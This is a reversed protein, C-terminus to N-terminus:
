PAFGRRSKGRVSILAQRAIDPSGPSQLDRSEPPEALAIPLDREDKWVLISSGKRLLEPWIEASKKEFVSHADALVVLWDGRSIERDLQGSTWGAYGAYIRFQRGKRASGAMHELTKKSTSVYVNEFVSVSGVPRRDSQILILMRYEEVPGGYYVVTEKKLGRVSPLVAHLPVPTPRNIILGTAGNSNYDLLLVVTEQFRPDILNKAAVLFKGKAPMVSFPDPETSVPAESVPAPLVGTGEGAYVFTPSAALTAVVVAAAAFLMRGPSNITGLLMPM